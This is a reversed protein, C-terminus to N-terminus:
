SSSSAPKEPLLYAAWINPEKEVLQIRTFNRAADLEILEDKDALFLFRVPRGEKRGAETLVPPALFPANPRCLGATRQHRARWEDSPARLYKVAKREDSPVDIELFPEGNELIIHQGRYGLFFVGDADGEPKWKDDIMAQRLDGEPADPPASGQQVQGPQLPVLRAGVKPAAAERPPAKKKPTKKAM